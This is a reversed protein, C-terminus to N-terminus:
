QFIAFCFYTTISWLALKGFSHEIALKEAGIIIGSLTNPVFTKRSNHARNNIRIMDSHSFYDEQYTRLVSLFKMLSSQNHIYAIGLALLFITVSM